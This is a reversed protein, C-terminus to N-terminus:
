MQFFGLCLGHRTVRCIESIAQEMAPVSLHELLDHVFCFDFSDDDADIQLVNGVVFRTGAFMVRANQVNTECLDSGTYDLLRTLGFSKLFRYDNASGCAPELVSITAARENALVASWTRAFLDKVSDSDNGTTVYETLLERIYNPISMADAATPLARFAKGLHTPIQVAETRDAGAELASILATVDEALPKKSLFKVLWNLATAFRLEEYRLAAYREGFLAGILYHRTLISQINIRPDEVGSVL